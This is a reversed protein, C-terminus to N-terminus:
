DHTAAFVDIPTLVKEIWAQYWSKRGSAGSSLPELGDGAGAVDVPFIPRASRPGFDQLAPRRSLWWLSGGKALWAVAVDNRIAGRDKMRRLIGLALARVAAPEMDRLAGFMERIRLRAHRCARELAERDVGVAAARTRELTRGIASRYGLEALTDWRLREAVLARCLRAGSETDPVTTLVTRIARAAVGHM